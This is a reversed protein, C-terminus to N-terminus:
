TRITQKPIKENPHRLRLWRPGDCKRLRTEAFPQRFDGFEVVDGEKLPTFEYQAEPKRESSSNAGTRGRLEIHGALFDAHFHTLFVHKITWGNQDTDHIYQEIDRQPDIIVATKTREDAILYSAHALCGLYYQKLIMM